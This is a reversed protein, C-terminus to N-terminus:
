DNLSHAYMDNHLSMFCSVLLGGIFLSILNVKRGGSAKIATELKAKLGDM